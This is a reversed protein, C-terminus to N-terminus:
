IRFAFKYGPHCFDFVQVPSVATFYHGVFVSVAFPCNLFLYIESIGESKLLDVKKKVEQAYSVADESSTISVHGVGTPPILNMLKRYSIKEQQLFDKVPTAIHNSVSLVIVGLQSNPESEAIHEEVQVKYQTSARETSWIEGKQVVELTVGRARSFRNGLLLGGPLSLNAYLRVKKSTGSWHLAWESSIEDLEHIIRRWEHELPLRRPSINTDFYNTWDVSIHPPENYSQKDYGYVTLVFAETDQPQRAIETLMNKITLFVANDKDIKCISSHDEDVTLIKASPHLTTTSCKAVAIDREGRIAIQTILHHPKRVSTELNSFHLNWARELSLLSQSNTKLSQIQRNSLWNPILGAWGSGRFPVALYLIGKIRGADRVHMSEIRDIVYKQVALGGMSHAVFIIDRDKLRAQMETYLLEAVSSFDYQKLIFGSKYGFSFMSVSKLEREHSLQEALTCIASNKKWTSTPDGSLGHVFVVATGKSETGQVINFLKAQKVSM